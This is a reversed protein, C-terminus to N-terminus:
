TNIENKFGYTSRNRLGVGIEFSLPTNFLTVWADLSGRL